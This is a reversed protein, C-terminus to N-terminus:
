HKKKVSAKARKNFDVAFGIWEDLKKRTNIEDEKVYVYGKYERGKMIMPRCGRREVLEDHLAPDIRCMLEDDGTSVCMKGNVMFGVGRFMRKEEVKPLHALAERVRLTLEENHAM